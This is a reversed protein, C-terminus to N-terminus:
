GAPLLWQGTEPHVMGFRVATTAAELRSHAGLKMLVSQIHCRATTDAIGLERALRTTDQGCVLAGLVQRERPTLFSAVRQAHAAATGRKPRPLPGPSALSPLVREGAQVRDLIGVIEAVPLRKDAVGRVGAARGAALVQDDVRGCLLVVASRPAATRIDALRDLVSDTEFMVDLLCVDVPERRLVALAQDPHFTTAVVETGMAALLHALSEAFVVHDDCILVRM